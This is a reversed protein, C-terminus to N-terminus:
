YRSGRSRSSGYLSGGGFSSSRSSGYLSPPSIRTGASGTFPNINGKTTWNNSFASDKTSRFHGQTYSGDKKTYGSVFSSSYSSGTGQAFTPAIVAAVAALALLIKM